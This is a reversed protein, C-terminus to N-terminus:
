QEVFIPIEVLRLAGGARTFVYVATVARDRGLTKATISVDAAVRDAGFQETRLVKTQWLEPQSGVLGKSFNVLEGPAVLADLEAKRGGRIAQDLQGVAAKVAEDVAPASAGQAAEARLRAARAALTTAYVAEARVAEDFRRAAEAPQGRRLAIEGLGIQAWALTVPLPLREDLAARFEREADALKNQELLARALLVRADQMLPVRSMVDRAMQEVRAYEQAALARPAEDLFAEPALARPAVDDGYDVQPYLKDPDIEVRVVRANTKFRAEGFDRAPVSVDTTVRQGGDTVAAVTVSVGFAGTNRVASVWEAGRQQPVGIQLDTDTPQDLLADLQAKLPAGGAGALAARLAALTLGGERGAQLQARLAALFTDRGLAREALRWVMAGKNAVSAFYTPELPTTQSLPADRRALPAYALRERLREADAAERGFEKELFLAALHRPLGERVAGAGEGRVPVAGGIWLHAVAEAVTMATLADIKARRLVAEDLLITGGMDFGAGRRVTVLRLPTDPAPGLLGAYFARASAALALLNEARKREDASAGRQIFASVGRAADAGEVTEWRGTLFFPQASLKQEYTAGSAQGSSVVTEGGPASVALRVPATDAGRASFPSNPSPYWFSLPLFQAGETSIAALGTNQGALPLRYDFTVSLSAGPAAPAPLTLTVMQLQQTRTDPRSTFRAQADGVTAAKIEAAPNLRVTFTRGAGQGYNRVSLTARANLERAATASAPLTVNIDFRQVEYAPPAEQARVGAALFSLIIILYFSIRLKSM